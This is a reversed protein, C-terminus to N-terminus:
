VEAACAAECHGCCKCKTRKDNCVDALYPCSHPPRALSRHPCKAKGLMLMLRKGTIRAGIARTKIQLPRKM